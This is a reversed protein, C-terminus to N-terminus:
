SAILGGIEKSIAMRTFRNKCGFMEAMTINELAFLGLVACNHIVILAVMITSPAYSKDVIISLMPWALVIASTNMIIYPIRRGIKDSLWGLFPITMFGLISSIMLADTPIAKNF